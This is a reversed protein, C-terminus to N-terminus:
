EKAVNLKSRLGSYETIEVGASGIFMEAKIKLPIHNKDDSFWATISNEGDFIKNKPMIPKLVIARVRGIKVKITEKGEYIIRLKYFEDEYFGAVSITDHLKVKSFDINRLYVFGGIMDRIHEPAEYYKPSRMNGRKDLSKVEIKSNQQDFNTWEDKKYKGQRVFRYFQHPLLSATDIYAGYRDDVDAVWDVMGVTKGTVDIKYCYRDNIKHYSDHVHVAGRGVTFFGFTMKFQIVEGKKFSNNKAFPHAERPKEQIFGSLLLILFIAFPLRKM